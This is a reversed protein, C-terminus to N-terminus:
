GEQEDTRSRNWSPTSIPHSRHARGAGRAARAAEDEQVEIKGLDADLAEYLLEAAAGLDLTEGDELELVVEYRIRLERPM